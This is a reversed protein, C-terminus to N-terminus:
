GNRPPEFLPDFCPNPSRRFPEPLIRGIPMDAGVAVLGSTCKWPLPVAGGSVSTAQSFPQPTRSRCLPGECATGRLRGASAPGLADPSEWSMRHGEQVAFEAIRGCHQAMVRSENAMAFWALMLLALSRALVSRRRARTSGTDSRNPLYGDGYAVLVHRDDCFNRNGFNLIAPTGASLDFRELNHSTAAM